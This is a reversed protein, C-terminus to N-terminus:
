IFLPRTTSGNQPAPPNFAPPLSPAVSKWAIVVRGSVRCRRHQAEIVVRRERLEHIRPTVENIPLSTMESLERNTADPVASLAVFVQKQRLGLTRQIDFYAKLSSDQIM